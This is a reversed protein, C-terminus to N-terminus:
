IEVDKANFVPGGKCVHWYEPADKPSKATKVACGLCVGLGCAMKEELSLQCPIDKELALKQVAKLMPLPGCAFIAEINKKSLDEELLNIAFGKIKYSGDDTTLTLNSSVDEFEKELVVFDKSRFGLYTNVNKGDNKACKALEYLPFVGIGGGIVAINEYNSYKFPGYGLPGVIDIEEGERRESLIKTGKGKVQFIFELIGEEKKMNYISIPRRLFPEIDNNVRIEIFQGPRAVSTIEEAKVSYKFIDPKLQEKSILKAKINVPM